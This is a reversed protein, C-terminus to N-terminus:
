YYWRGYQTKPRERRTFEFVRAKANQHSTDKEIGEPFVSARDKPNLRLYRFRISASSVFANAAETNILPITDSETSVAVTKEYEYRYVDGVADSNPVHWFAIQVTTGGIFYCYTPDGQDTRYTSHVRRLNEEGGNWPYVRTGTATGTSTASEVQELFWHEDRMRIFDSELSYARTGQSLTIYGNDHEYPFAEDSVLDNLEDQVAIKALNIMNEHQTDDFTSVNDDDGTIVGESRLIRNVADLFIM